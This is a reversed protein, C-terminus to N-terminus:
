RMRMSIKLTYLNQPIGRDMYILGCYSAYQAFGVTVTGVVGGYGHFNIDWSNEQWDFVCFMLGSFKNRTYITTALGAIKRM